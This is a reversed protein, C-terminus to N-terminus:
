PLTPTHSHTNPRTDHPTPCTPSPAPAPHPAGPPCAPLLVNLVSRVARLLVALRCPPGQQSRKRPSAADPLARSLPRSGPVPTPRGHGRYFALRHMMPPAGGKCSRLAWRQSLSEVVPALRDVEAPAVVAAWRRATVVLAKSLAARRDPSAPHIRSNTHTHTHTKRLPHLSVRMLDGARMWWSLPQWRCPHWTTAGRASRCHQTPYDAEQAAPQARRPVWCCAACVAPMSRVDPMSGVDGKRSTDAEGEGGGDGDGCM